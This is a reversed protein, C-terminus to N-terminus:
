AAMVYQYSFMTGSKIETRSFKVKVQTSLQFNISSGTATILSYYLRQREATPLRLCWPKIDEFNSICAVKDGYLICLTGDYPEVSLAGDMFTESELSYKIAETNFQNPENVLEKSDSAELVVPPILNVSISKDTSTVEAIPLQIIEGNTNAKSDDSFLPLLENLEKKEPVVPLDTSLEIDPLPSQMPLGEATPLLDTLPNIPVKDVMLVEEYARETTPTIDRPLHVSDNEILPTVKSIEQMEYIIARLEDIQEQQEAIVVATTIKREKKFKSTVASKVIHGDLIFKKVFLVEHAYYFNKQTSPDKIDFANIMKYTNSTNGPNYNTALKIIGNDVLQRLMMALETGKIGLFWSHNKSHIQYGGKYDYYNIQHILFEVKPKFKISLGSFLAEFNFGAPTNFIVPKDENNETSM